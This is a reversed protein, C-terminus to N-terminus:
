VEKFAEIYEDLTVEEAIELISDLEQQSSINVARYNGDKKFYRTNDNVLVSSNMYKAVTARIDEVVQNTTSYISNYQDPTLFPRGNMLFMLDNLSTKDWLERLLAKQLDPALSYDEKFEKMLDEMITTKKRSM